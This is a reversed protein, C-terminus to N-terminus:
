ATIISQLTTLIRALTMFQFSRWEDESGQYYVTKLNACIAFAGSGIKKVNKGIAVSVLQTCWAFADDGIATVPLGNYTPPIIVKKVTGDDIGTVSYSVGDANLTYELGLSGVVWVVPTEGDTDYKWYNGDYAEGAENLAPESESFYYRTADTLYSNNNGIKIEAWDEALGKYYVTQLNKCGQFAGYGISTVSDGIVVSTLSSCYYFAYSGISMVGDPIVIETLSSCGRFAQDGISEVSDPIVIETLSSCNSFAGVGISEVGDPIVIETL